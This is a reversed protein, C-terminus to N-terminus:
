RPWYQRNKVWAVSRYLHLGPSRLLKDYAIRWTETGAYIVTGRALRGLQESVQAVQELAVDRYIRDSNQSIKLLSSSIERYPEFLAADHALFLPTDLIGTNKRWHRWDGHTEWLLGTAVAVLVGLASVQASVTSFMGLLVCPLRASSWAAGFAPVDRPRETGHLNQGM